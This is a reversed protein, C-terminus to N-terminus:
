ILSETWPYHTPTILEKPDPCTDENTPTTDEDILSPRAFHNLEKEKRPQILLMLPQKVKCNKTLNNVFVSIEIKLSIM